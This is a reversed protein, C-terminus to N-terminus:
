GLRSVCEYTSTYASTRTDPETEAHLIGETEVGDRHPTMSSVGGGWSQRLGGRHGGGRKGGGRKLARWTEGRRHLPAPAAPPHTTSRSMPHSSILGVHMYELRQMRQMYEGLQAKGAFVELMVYKCKHKLAKLLTDRDIPSRCLIDQQVSTLFFRQMKTSQEKKKKLQVLLADKTTSGSCCTILM